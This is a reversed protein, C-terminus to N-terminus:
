QKVSKTMVAFDEPRSEIAYISIDSVMNIVALDEPLPKRPQRYYIAFTGLLEKNHSMLPNSWCARLGIPLALTKYISWFPHNEIDSVIVQEKRYAATGCSGASPAAFIGNVAETYHLPLSPAAGHFLQLTESNFLLISSVLDKSGEKEVWLLIKELIDSLPYDQSILQEVAEELEHVSKRAPLVITQIETGM